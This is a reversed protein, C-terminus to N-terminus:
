ERRFWGGVRGGVQLRYRRAQGAPVHVMSRHLVTEQTVQQRPTILLPPVHTRPYTPVHTRPPMMVLVPRTTLSAMSAPARGM